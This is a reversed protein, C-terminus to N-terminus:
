DDKLINALELSNVTENLDSIRSSMGNEIHEELEESSFRYDELLSEKILTKIKIQKEKNLSSIYKDSQSNLTM